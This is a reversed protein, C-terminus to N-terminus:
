EEDEEDDEEEVPAAETKEDAAVNLTITPPPPPPPTAVKVIMPLEEIDKIAIKGQLIERLARPVLSQVPDPLSEKQKIEKAWRITAYALKYREEKCQLLLGEMPLDEPLELEAKKM